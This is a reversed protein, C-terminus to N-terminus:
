KCKLNREMSVQVFLLVWVITGYVGVVIGSEVLPICFCFKKM